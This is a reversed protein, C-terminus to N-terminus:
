AALVNLANKVSRQQAELSERLPSNEPAECLNAAIFEGLKVIRSTKARDYLADACPTGTDGGGCHIINDIGGFPCSGRKMCDGLLTERYSIRGGKAAKTLKKSDEPDILQLKTLKHDEGLPSVFRDTFLHAIEKSMVEYM